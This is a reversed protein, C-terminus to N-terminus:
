FLELNYNKLKETTKKYDQKIKSVITFIGKIYNTVIDRTQLINMYEGFSILKKNFLKNIDDNINYAAIYISNQELVFNYHITFNKITKLRCVLFINGVKITDEVEINSFEKKLKNSIVYILLLLKIEHSANMVSKIDNYDKDIIINLIDKIDM